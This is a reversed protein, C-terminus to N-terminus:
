EADATEAVEEVIEETVEEAVPAILARISLSVKKAEYDISMIKVTVVDGISVVDEPKDIKRDALQSIHILGDVGPVVEAFAGFPMISVVKVEAEDGEAYKSALINWPNTEETKLGLSIRKKEVDVAKVFVDVKDGINVVETPHKIRKWSLETIHVMGDVGGLDVFAGYATISKVTGTYKKGVEVDSWFEDRQAKRVEAAAKRISGVARRRQSNVDPLIKIDYTNGILSKLQEETVGEETRPFDTHSAPIFVRNSGCQMIVGGKVAETVKGTLTTNNEAADVLVQWNKDGDLRKKSLNVIGEPDNYKVIQVEIEDGVKYEAMIDVSPDDTVESSPLVGTHKIGLDVYIAAPTVSTIVGQVREGARPPKTYSDLMEEFSMGEMIETKATNNDSTINNMRIKVEEIIDDPTSAGATICVSLGSNYRIKKVVTDKVEDVPISDANECFFTNSCNECCIEYLHKTNSSKKGGVVIMIDNICSEKRAQAQRSETVSCITDFVKLNTYMFKLVNQCKKYNETNNTTQSVLIAANKGFNVNQFCRISEPSDFVYVNGKAYSKIGTVEPHGEKGIIITDVSESSNESVIKHIKKVFPCTADVIESFNNELFGQEKLTVGHTRIVCVSDTFNEIESLSEITIVGRENLQKIYDSNHILEGYIYIKERTEALEKIIKDARRVGFCFGSDKSIIINIEKNM